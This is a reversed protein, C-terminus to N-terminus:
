ARDYCGGTDHKDDNVWEGIMQKNYNKIILGESVNRGFHSSMRSFVELMQYVCEINLNKCNVVAYDLIQLEDKKEIIQPVDKIILYDFYVRKSPPLDKYKVQRRGTNERSMDGYLGVKVTNYDYFVDGCSLIGGVKEQIHVVGDFLELIEGRKLCEKRQHVNGHPISLIRSRYWEIIQEKSMQSPLENVIM